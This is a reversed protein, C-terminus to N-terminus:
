RIYLVRTYFLKGTVIFCFSAFNFQFIKSNAKDINRAAKIDLIRRARLINENNYLYAVLCFCYIYCISIILLFSYFLLQWGKEINHEHQFWVKKFTFKGRSFSNSLFHFGVLKRLLIFIAGKLSHIVTM